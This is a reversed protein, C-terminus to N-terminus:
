YEVFFAVPYEVGDKDVQCLYAGIGLISADTYLHVETDGKDDWWFLLPCKNVAEKITQFATETEESWVLLQRPNYNELMSHLPAVIASHNRVHDRFYNTLGLFSKLQKSTKPLAVEIVKQLKERTFHAGKNNILHGVYEVERLGIQCKDPNVTINFRKLARIVTEFNKLFEEETNGFVIIDDLYVECIEYLLGALVETAMAEQFYSPAGCLGMAVRNWEYLGNPTIFATLHKSGECLPAQYYGKTLDIVGYFSAQKSGLRDMLEKIKPLPFRKVKTVVNLRRYDICFRWTGNPKVTLMVQSYASATSPRIVGSDLMKETQSRIEVGKTRSQPRPPHRNDRVEWDGILEVDMPRIKAPERNLERSFVTNLEKCLKEAAAIFSPSGEILKPLISEVPTLVSVMPVGRMPVKRLKARRCRGKVRGRMTWKAKRYLRRRPYRGGSAVEDAIQTNWNTNLVRASEGRLSSFVADRLPACHKITDFGIIMDHSTDIVDFDLVVDVMTETKTDFFRVRIEFSENISKISGVFCSCVRKDVRRAKYGMVKLGESITRNIYNVRPGLAGTDLLVNVRLPSSNPTIKNAIWMTKRGYEDVDDYYTVNKGHDSNSTDCPICYKEDSTTIANVSPYIMDCNIRHASTYECRGGRGGRTGRGRGGGRGKNGRGGWSANLNTPKGNSMRTKDVAARLAADRSNDRFTGDLQKLYPLTFVGEKAWM